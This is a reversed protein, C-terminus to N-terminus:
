LISGGWVLASQFYEEVTDPSCHTSIVTVAIDMVGDVSVNSASFQESSPSLFVCLCQWVDIMMEDSCYYLVPDEIKLIIDRVEENLNMKRNTKLRLCLRCTESFNCTSQLVSNKVM